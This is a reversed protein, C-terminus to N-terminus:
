CLCVLFPTVVYGTDSEFVIDVDEIVILSAEALAIGGIVSAEATDEVPSYRNHTPFTPCAFSPPLSPPLSPLLSPPLSPPIPSPSTSSASTLNPLWGFCLTGLCLMLTFSCHPPLLVLVYMLVTGKELRSDIKLGHYRSVNQACLDKVPCGIAAASEALTEGDKATTYIVQTHPHTLPPPPPAILPATPRSPMACAFSRVFLLTFLRAIRQSM